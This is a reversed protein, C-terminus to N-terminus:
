KPIEAAFDYDYLVKIQLYNLGFFYQGTTESLSDRARHIALSWRHWKDPFQPGLPFLM